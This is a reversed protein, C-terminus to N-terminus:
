DEGRTLAMIEDTTMKGSGSGQLLRVIRQWPTAGKPV